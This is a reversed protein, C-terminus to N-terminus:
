PAHRDLMESPLEMLRPGDLKWAEIAASARAEVQTAIEGSRPGFWERWNALIREPIEVM